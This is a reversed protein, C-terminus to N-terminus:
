ARFERVEGFGPRGHIHMAHIEDFGIPMRVVVADRGRIWNALFTRIRM